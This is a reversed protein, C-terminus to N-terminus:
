DRRVLPAWTLVCVLDGPMLKSEYFGNADDIVAEIAPAKGIGIVYDGVIVALNEHQVATVRSAGGGDADTDAVQIVFVEALKPAAVPEPSPCNLQATAIARSLWPFRCM